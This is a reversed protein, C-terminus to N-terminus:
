PLDDQWEQAEIKPITQFSTVELDIQRDAKSILRRTPHPLDRWSEGGGAFVTVGGTAFPASMTRFFPSTNPGVPCPVDSAIRPPLISAPSTSLCIPEFVRTISRAPLLTM